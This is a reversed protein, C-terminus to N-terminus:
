CYKSVTTEMPLQGNLKRLCFEKKTASNLEFRFIEPPPRAGGSSRGQLLGTYVRKQVIHFLNFLSICYKHGIPMCFFTKLVHTTNKFTHM